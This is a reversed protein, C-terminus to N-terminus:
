LSVLWRGGAALLLTLALTGWRSWGAPQFRPILLATGLSGMLVAASQCFALVHPDAQWYPLAPWGFSVPLLLGAEELGLPLHRALLLAWLLPLLAYLLGHPLGRLRRLLLWGGAPLALALAAFALRPLL